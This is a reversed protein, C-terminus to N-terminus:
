RYIHQAIFSEVWWKYVTKRYAFVDGLLGAGASILPYLTTWATEAATLGSSQPVEQEPVECRVCPCWGDPKIDRPAGMFVVSSVNPHVRALQENLAPERVAIWIECNDWTPFDLCGDPCGKYEPVQVGGRFARLFRGKLIFGYTEYAGSARYESTNQEAYQVDFAERTLGLHVTSGGFYQSLRAYQIEGAVQRDNAPDRIARFKILEWFWAATAYAFSGLLTTLPYSMVAELPKAVKGSFRYEKKDGGNGDGGGSAQSGLEADSGGVSRGGSRDSSAEKRSSDLSDQRTLRPKGSSELQMLSNVPPADSGAVSLRSSVIELELEIVPFDGSGAVGFLRAPVKNISTLLPAKVRGRVPVDGVVKLSRSSRTRVIHLQTKSQGTEPSEVVGMRVELGDPHDGIVGYASRHKKGITDYVLIDPVVDYHKDYEWSELYAGVGPSPILVLPGMQQKVGQGESSGSAVPEACVRYVVASFALLGFLLYRGSFYCGSRVAKM